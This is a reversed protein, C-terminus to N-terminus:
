VRAEKFIQKGVLPVISDAHSFPIAEVPLADLFQQGYQRRYVRSDTVIFVGEDTSSRILRGFGQRFRTIAEPVQFDQFPNRGQEQLSEIRAEVVPDTPNAFPLRAIILMELLEGPLDVGEWFSTTGLLIARRHERFADLLSRRSSGGFQAILRRETRFLRAYLATHVAQLQAYSTFLVLLRREIQDTLTDILDALRQPYLPDTVDVSTDWALVACQEAYYFPSPFEREVVPWAVFSEDLGVQRRYYDFTSGVQLTASCLVTGPRQEFLQERLFAGVTLPASQFAVKAQGKVVRVERWLVHDGTPAELAIRQFANSLAAADALDLELESLLTEAVTIDTTSILTHIEKLSQTFATLAEGTALVEPDLGRFETRPDIYRTQQTAFKWDPSAEIKHQELYAQLLEPTIKQLTRAAQRVEEYWSRDEDIVQLAEQLQKRYIQRFRGALYNETLRSVVEEGFTMTLQDTTVRPLNHAEDLVLAFEDPLVGVDGAADAILLAHNVIVLSASDAARRIPGLFCGHHRRCINGLCFGRESRLMAWLRGSAPVLFGPCEDIDGTKTFQEWILIPLIRECDGPGLLRRANALVFELRTRCLYNRRGKLMVAKLPAELTAALRPIEKYFLQDQLHKTQCSIVVPVNHVYTHNVAALLYALSKGLGTGAETLAILGDEFAGAVAKAFEAQVARYEFREWQSALLGEPGFFGDPSAPGYDDGRGEQEFVSQLVPHDLASETLGKVQGRSSMVQVLRSYLMRNPNTVHEQVGLLAQIVPLPYAAAEHILRLFIQGTHLADHYARHADRHSIGYYECLAGLSFGSHFYLLTRALPLTDYLLNGIEDPQGLSRYISRLFALDFRINHAVLPREGVFDLFEQGVEAITPEGAVMDDTINTLDVVLRPIPELPNVLQQFTDAHEGGSFRVAGLEIIANTESDLGTTEFDIVVFDDLELQELLQSTTM